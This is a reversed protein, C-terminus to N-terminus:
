YPLLLSSGYLRTLFTQSEWSGLLCDATIFLPPIKNEQTFVLWRTEMFDEMSELHSNLQSCAAPQLSSAAAAPGQVSWWHHEQWKWITRINETHSQHSYIRGSVSSNLDSCESRAAQLAPHIPTYPTSGLPWMVGSLHICNFSTKLWDRM